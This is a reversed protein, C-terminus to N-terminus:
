ETTRAQRRKWKERGEEAWWRELGAMQVLREASALISDSLIDGKVRATLERKAREVGVSWHELQPM